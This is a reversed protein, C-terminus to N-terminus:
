NNEGQHITSIKKCLLETFIADATALWDGRVSSYARATMALEKLRGLYLEPYSRVGVSNDILGFLCRSVSLSKPRWAANPEYKTMLVLGAPVPPPTLDNIVVTKGLNQRVRPTRVFPHVLGHSDILAYEDSYYTAGADVLAMVLTTKGAFSRGPILIAKGDVAVVGAHVFAHTTARAAIAEHASGELVELAERWTTFNGRSNRDELITIREGISVVFTVGPKVSNNGSSGPIFNSPLVDIFAQPAEIGICVGCCTFSLAARCQPMPVSQLEVAESALVTM